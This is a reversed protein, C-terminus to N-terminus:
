GSDRVVVDVVGRVMVHVVVRVMVDVMGRVVCKDLEATQGKKAVPCDATVHSTEGCIKCTVDAMQYNGTTTHLRLLSYNLSPVANGIRISIRGLSKHKVGM